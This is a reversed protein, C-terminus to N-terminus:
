KVQSLSLKEIVLEVNVETNVCGDKTLPIVIIPPYDKEELGSIKKVSEIGEELEKMCAVAAIAGPNKDRVFKLALSGGPAICVGKYNLEEAKNKIINVQCNPDCSLCRM